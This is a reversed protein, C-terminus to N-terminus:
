RYARWDFIPNWVLATTVVDFVGSGNPVYVKSGAKLTLTGNNLELTIDQPIETLCNTWPMAKTGAIKANKTNGDLVPFYSVDGVGVESFESLKKDVM